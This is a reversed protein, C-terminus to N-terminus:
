AAGTTTSARRAAPAVAPLTAERAKRRQRRKAQQQTSQYARDPDLMRVITTAHWRKGRAPYGEDTLTSAIARFSVGESRLERARAVAAGEADDPVLTSGDDSVTMGVPVSGVLEGRSRKASLTDRTREAIAEREWEAVSTLIRLIMRGSASRGDISEAVSLLSAGGDDLWDLLEGLHAVSRTLRDLKPILICDAMGGAIMALAKQLGPRNLTAGSHGADEVVAVVTVDYLSAYARCRDAQAALSSGEDAQQDTSVRVYAVANAM